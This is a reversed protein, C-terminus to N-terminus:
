IVFSSVFLRVCVYVCLSVFHVMGNQFTCNRFNVLAFHWVCVDKSGDNFQIKLKKIFEKRLEFVQQEIARERVRKRETFDKIIIVITAEHVNTHKRQIAPTPTIKVVYEM